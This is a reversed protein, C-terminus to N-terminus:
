HSTATEPQRTQGKGQSLTTTKKIMIPCSPSRYAATQTGCVQRQVTTPLAPTVKFSPEGLNAARRCKSTLLVWGTIGEATHSQFATQNLPFDQLRRFVQTVLHFPPWPQNQASGLPPWRISCYAPGGVQCIVLAQWLGLM